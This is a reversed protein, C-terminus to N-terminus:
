RYQIGLGQSSQATRAKKPPSWQQAGNCDDGSAEHQGGFKRKERSPGEDPEVGGRRAEQSSRSDRRLMETAAQSAQSGYLEEGEGGGRNRPGQAGAGHSIMSASTFSQAAAEVSKLAQRALEENDDESITSERSKRRGHTPTMARRQAYSRSARKPPETQPIMKPFPLMGDREVQVRNIPTTPLSSLSQANRSHRAAPNRGPRPAMIPTSPASNNNDHNMAELLTNLNSGDSPPANRWQGTAAHRHQQQGPSMNFIGGPKTWRRYNDSKEQLRNALQEKQEELVQCRWDQKQIVHKAARLRLQLGQNEALVREYEASVVKHRQQLEGVLNQLDHKADRLHDVQRLQDIERDHMQSEVDMLQRQQEGELCILGYQLRNSANIAELKGYESVAELLMDRLQPATADMIHQQPPPLYTSEANRRHIDLPVTAPPSVYNSQHSQSFAGRPVGNTLEAQTSPPPTLSSPIVTGPRDDNAETKFSQDVEVSSQPMETSPLTMQSSEPPPQPTSPDRPSEAVHDMVIGNSLQQKDEVGLDSAM